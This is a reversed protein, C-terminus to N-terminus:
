RRSAGGGTRCTSGPSKGGTCLPVGDARYCTADRRSLAPVRRTKLRTSREFRTAECSRSRDVACTNPPSLRAGPAPCQSLMLEDFRCGPAVVARAVSM